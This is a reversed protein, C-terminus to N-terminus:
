KGRLENLAEHFLKSPMINNKAIWKSDEQSIRISMVIKKGEKRQVNKLEM